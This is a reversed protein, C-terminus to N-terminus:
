VFLLPAILVGGQWTRIKEPQQKSMHQGLAKTAGAVIPKEVAIAFRHNPQQLIVELEPNTRWLLMDFLRRNRTLLTAPDHRDNRGPNFRQRLHLRHRLCLWYSVSLALRPLYVVPLTVAIGDVM